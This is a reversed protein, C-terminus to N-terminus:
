ELTKIQKELTQIKGNYQKTKSSTYKIIEGRIYAKFAEWRVSATTEGTNLQFYNDICAEIFKLFSPDQLWYVQFRWRPSHQAFKGLCVEMSVVAHDSVVISDYWCNKVNTLM